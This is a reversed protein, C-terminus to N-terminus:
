NRRQFYWVICNNATSDGLLEYFEYNNNPNADPTTFAKKFQEMVEETLLKEINKRSLEPYERLLSFIFNCLEDHKGNVITIPGTYNKPKYM